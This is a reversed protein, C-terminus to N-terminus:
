ASRESDVLQPKKEKKEKETNSQKEETLDFRYIIENQKIHCYECNSDHVFRYPANINFSNDNVMFYGKFDQEVDEDYRCIEYLSGKQEIKFYASSGVGSLLQAEGVREELKVPKPSVHEPVKPDFYNTLNEKLVNGTYPKVVGNLVHYIDQSTSAIKINGLPSPTFLSNKKLKKVKAENNLSHIFTDAVLRSCNSGTNGFTMYPVSGQNQLGSLFKYAKDYDIDDCVSAIMRGQGHTKKPHAELWILIEHLNVIKEDEIIAQVPIQLEADTNGSRVRGKGKPTIYRGFDYYKIHGTKNEILLLLTHGAKIHKKRGLGLFPFIYNLVFEDSYRVFTDPFAIPIIKGTNM